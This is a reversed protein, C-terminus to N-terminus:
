KGYGARKLMMRIFAIRRAKLDIPKMGNRDIADTTHYWCGKKLQEVGNDKRRIKLKEKIARFEKRSCTILQSPNFPSSLVYIMTKEELHRKEAIDVAKRYMRKAYATVVYKALKEFIKKM